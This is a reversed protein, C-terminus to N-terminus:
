IKDNNFIEKIKELVQKPALESKTIFNVVGIKEVKERFEKDGEDIIVVISRRGIKQKDLLEKLIDLGTKEGVNNEIFVYDFDHGACLYKVADSENDTAISMIGELMFKGSERLINYPNDVIFLTQIPCDLEKTIKKDIAKGLVKNVVEGPMSVSQDVFDDAGAELAMKKDNEFDYRSSTDAIFIKINSNHGDRRIKKTIELGGMDVSVLLADINEKQIVNMTDKDTYAILVELGARSFMRLYADAMLYKDDAILIKQM